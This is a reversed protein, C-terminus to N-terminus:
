SPEEVPAVRRPRSDDEPGRRALENQFETLTIYVSAGDREMDVGSIASLGASSRENNMRTILSIRYLLDAKRLKALVQRKLENSM